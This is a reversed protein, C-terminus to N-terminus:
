IDGESDRYFTDREQVEELWIWKEELILLWYKKFFIRIVNWQIKKWSRTGVQTVTNEVIKSYLYTVVRYMYVCDCVCM